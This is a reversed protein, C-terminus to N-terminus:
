AAKQFNRLAASRADEAAMDKANLQHAFKEDGSELDHKLKGIYDKRSAEFNKMIEKQTALDRELGERKATSENIQTQM